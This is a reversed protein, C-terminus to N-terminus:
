RCPAPKKTPIDFPPAEPCAENIRRACIRCYRYRLHKHVYSEHQIDAQCATRACRQQRNREEEPSM